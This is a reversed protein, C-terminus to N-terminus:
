CYSQSQAGLNWVHAVVGYTASNDGQYVYEFEYCMGSPPSVSFSVTYSTASTFSTTYSDTISGSLAVGMLSMSGSVEFNFSSSLTYSGGATMSNTYPSSGEFYVCYVVGPDSNCGPRSLWDSVNTPGSSSTGSPQWFVPFLNVVRGSVSNFVMTGTVDFEQKLVFSDGRVGPITTQKSVVASASYSTGAGVSLGEIAGQVSLGYSESTTFTSSSTVNFEVYSSNTFDYTMPILGSVYNSPVHATISPRDWVVFSANWAGVGGWANGYACQNYYDCLTTTSTFISVVETVGAQDCAEEYTGANNYGDMELRFNGNSLTHTYMAWDAAITSDWTTDSWSGGWNSCHAAVLVGQAGAHGTNNVVSGYLYMPSSSSLTESSTTWGGSYAGPCYYPHPPDFMAEVYYYYNTGPELFNLFTTNTGSGYVTGNLATYGYNTTNGWYLYITSKVQVTWSITVNTAHYTVSSTVTDTVVCSLPGAAPSARISAPSIVFFLSIIVVFAVVPWNFRRKNSWNTIDLEFM